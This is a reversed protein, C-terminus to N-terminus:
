VEKLQNQNNIVYARVNEIAASKASTCSKYEIKPPM